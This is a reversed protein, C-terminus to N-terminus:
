KNKFNNLIIMAIKIILIIMTFPFLFFFISYVIWFDDLIKFSQLIYLGIFYVWFLFILIILNNIKFIKREVFYFSSIILLPIAITYVYFM